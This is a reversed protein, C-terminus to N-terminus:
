EADSFKRSKFKGTKTDRIIKTLETVEQDNLKRSLLKGPKAKIDPEYSGGFKTKVPSGSTREWPKDVNRFQEIGEGIKSLGRAGLGFGIIPHGIATSGVGAGIQTAGKAMTSVGPRGLVSSLSSSGRQIGPASLELLRAAGQGTRGEEVDTLANQATPGFPTITSALRSAAEPYDGQKLASKFKGFEEGHAQLLGKTAEYPHRITSILGPIAGKIDHGLTSLFGADKKPQEIPAPTDGVQMKHLDELTYEKDAM